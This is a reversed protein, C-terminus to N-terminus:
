ALLKQLRILTIKIQEDMAIKIEEEPSNILRQNLIALMEEASKGTACVIFIYGFKLEYAANAAALEAIVQRSATSVSSQEESAWAATAAFKTALSDTDGIKPHHAFAERWDSETCGYWQAEADELLEVLDDMPFFNLMRNVWNTSGCCAFLEQKLSEAPLTNLEHLTM